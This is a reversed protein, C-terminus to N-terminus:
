DSKWLWDLLLDRHKERREVGKKVGWIGIALGWALGLVLECKRFVVELFRKPNGFGNVVLTFGQEFGLVIFYAGIWWIGLAM